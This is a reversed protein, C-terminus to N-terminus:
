EMEESSVKEWVYYFGSKRMYRATEYSLDPIMETNDRSGMVSNGLEEDENIKEAVKEDTSFKYDFIWIGM